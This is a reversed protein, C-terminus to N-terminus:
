RNGRRRGRVFRWAGAERMERLEALIAGASTSVLGLGVAQAGIMGSLAEVQEALADVRDALAALDPAPSLYDISM